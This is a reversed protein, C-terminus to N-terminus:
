DEQARALYGKVMAKLEESEVGPQLQMKGVFADLAEEFTGLNTVASAAERAAEQAIAQDMIVEGAVVEGAGIQERILDQANLFENTNTTRYQLYVQFDELDNLAMAQDGRVQLFRPGPLEIHTLYPEESDWIIMSGYGELGPNNWGTPVLAGIQAISPSQNLERFGHWHGSLIHKIGLRSQLNRLTEVSVADDGDQLYSPEDGASIGYHMILLDADEAYELALDPLMLEAKGPLFPIACIKIDDLAPSFAGLECPEDIVVAVPSLPGLAHDGKGDSVQEHNGVVAVSQMQELIRQVAAVIRPDPKTSDFLDGAVLFLDCAEAKARSMAAQLVNLTQQCRRNIGANVPGGHKQHNAVHVDAVIAIKAM